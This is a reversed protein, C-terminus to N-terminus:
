PRAPTICDSHINNRNREGQAPTHQHLQASPKAKCTHLSRGAKPGVCANLPQMLGDSLHLAAGKEQLLPSLGSSVGTGSIVKRHFFEEPIFPPCLTGSLGFEQSALHPEQVFCRNASPATIPCDLSCPSLTDQTLPLNM